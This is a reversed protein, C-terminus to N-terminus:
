PIRSVRVRDALDPEVELARTLFRTLVREFERATDEDDCEVVIRTRAPLPERRDDATM